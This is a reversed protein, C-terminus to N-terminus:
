RPEYKKMEQRAQGLLKIAGSRMQDVVIGLEGVLPRAEKWVRDLEQTIIQEEPTGKHKDLVQLWVQHRINLAQISSLLSLYKKMAENNWFEDHDVDFYLLFSHATISAEQVKNLQALFATNMANFVELEFNKDVALQEYLTSLGGSSAAYIYWQSVAAEAAQIKKVFYASQLSYKHEKSKQFLDLLKTAVVTLLSGILGGLLTEM